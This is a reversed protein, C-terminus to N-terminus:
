LTQPAISEGTKFSTWATIEPISVNAIDTVVGDEITFIRMSATAFYGKSRAQQDARFFLLTASLKRELADLLIDAPVVAISVTGNVKEKFDSADKFFPSLPESIASWELLKDVMATTVLKKQDNNLAHRSYNNIM